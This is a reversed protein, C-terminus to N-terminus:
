LPLQRVAPRLQQQQQALLIGAKRYPIICLTLAATPTGIVTFSLEEYEQYFENVKRPPNIQHIFILLLEASVFFLFVM